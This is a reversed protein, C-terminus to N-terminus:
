TGTGGGSPSGEGYVYTNYINYFRNRRPSDSNSDKRAQVNAEAVAKEIVACSMGLEQQLTRWESVPEPSLSIGSRLPLEFGKHYKKLAQVAAVLERRVEPDSIHAFTL